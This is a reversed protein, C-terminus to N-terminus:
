GMTKILYDKFGPLAFVLKGRVPEDIVGAELLRKKYISVHSPSKALRTKLNAQLTKGDDQSMALLFEIDAQSLESLTADFVRSELEEQALGVGQRVHDISIVGEDHSANWSRYGVLQLMFPFGDIREVATQLADEDIRKGGDMVTSRFAEEVEYSPIPGLSKRAARRLFSTSEGSLLASIRHPLGAMLLVVRRDERVFHQYTTVLSIMEDLSPDVEDVTILLGTGTKALQDLLSNMRTRWNAPAAQDRTFGVSGLAAVSVSALHVSSANDILHSSAAIAQQLIDELMGKTATVNSAIWGRARAEQALYTILATKGSGRAGVFMTCRDPSNDPNDLTTLSDDIIGGRGALYLPVKGFVPTFPNSQLQM